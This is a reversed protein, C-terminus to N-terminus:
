EGNGQRLSARKAVLIQGLKNSGRYAKDKIDKSLLTAGIGFHDNHTAENLNMEGTGLLQEALDQNQDFKASVVREMIEDRLNRWEPTNGVTDAVRKADLPTPAMIVAKRKDAAGAQRCKEAQYMHEASMYVTGDTEDVIIAPSFNSLFSAESAFNVVITKANKISYQDPLSQPDTLLHKRGNIVIGDTHVRIDAGDERALAAVARYDDRQKRTFATVDDNIYVGRYKANNKLNTRAFFFANRGRESVFTVLITRVRTTGQSQKGQRYTTTIDTVTMNPVGMDKALEVVIRKLNENQEEGVGDIRLNCIRQKNMLGNIQAEMRINNARTVVLEQKTVLHARTEKQRIVNTDEIVKTLKTIEKRCKDNAEKLEQITDTLEDLGDLRSHIRTLATQIDTNLSLSSQAAPSAPGAQSPRAPPQKGPSTPGGGAGSLSTARGKNRTKESM